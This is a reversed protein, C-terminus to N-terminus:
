TTVWTFGQFIVAGHLGLQQPNEQYVLTTTCMTLYSGQAGSM